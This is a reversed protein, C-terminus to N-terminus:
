RFYELYKTRREGLIKIAENLKNSSQRTVELLTDNFGTYAGFEEMSYGDKKTITVPVSSLRYAKKEKSYTISFKITKGNHEIYEKHLIM